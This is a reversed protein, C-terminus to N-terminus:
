QRHISLWGWACYQTKLCVELFACWLEIKSRCAHTSTAASSILHMDDTTHWSPNLDKLLGRLTCLNSSGGRAHLSMWLLLVHYIKNSDLLMHLDLSASHAEEAKGNSINHLAIHLIKDEPICVMATNAERCIILYNCSLGHDRLFQFSAKCIHWTCLCKGKWQILTCPQSMHSPMPSKMGTAM